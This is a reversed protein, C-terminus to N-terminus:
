QNSQLITNDWFKGRPWTKMTIYPKLVYDMLYVTPSSSIIGFGLFLFQSGDVQNQIYKELQNAKWKLADESSFLVKLKLYNNSNHFQCQYNGIQRCWVRAGGLELSWPHLLLEQPLAQEAWIIFSFLIKYCLWLDISIKPFAPPVPKHFLQEVLRNGVHIVGHPENHFGHQHLMISLRRKSSLKFIPLVFSVSLSKLIACTPPFGGFRVQDIIM